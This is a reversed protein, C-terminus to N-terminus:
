EWTPPRRRCLGVSSRCKMRRQRLGVNSRCLVSTLRLGVCYRRQRRSWLLTPRNNFVTEWNPRTLATFLLLPRCQVLVRTMSLVYNYQTNPNRIIFVIIDNFLHSNFRSQWAAFQPRMTAAAKPYLVIHRLLIWAHLAVPFIRSFFRNLTATAFVAEVSRYCYTSNLTQAM